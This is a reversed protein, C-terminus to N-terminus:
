TSWIVADGAFLAFYSSVGIDGGGKYARMYGGLAKNPM